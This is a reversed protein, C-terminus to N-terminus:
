PDWTNGFQLDPNAEAFNCSRGPLDHDDTTGYLSNASGQQPMYMLKQLLTWMM